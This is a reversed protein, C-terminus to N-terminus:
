RKGKSVRECSVAVACAMIRPQAADMAEVSDTTQALRYNGFCEIVRRMRLWERKTWDRGAAYLWTTAASGACCRIYDAHDLLEPREDNAAPLDSTFPVADFCASRNLIIRAANM